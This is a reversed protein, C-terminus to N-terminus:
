PAGELARALALLTGAVADPARAASARLAGTSAPGLRVVEVLAGRVRAPDDVALADCLIRVAGEASGPPLGGPPPVGSPPVGSPSPEDCIAGLVPVGDIILGIHCAPIRASEGGSGALGSGALGSGALDVVGEVTRLRMWSISGRPTDLRSAIIEFVTGRVIAEGADTRVRFGSAARRVEFRGAGELHLLTREGGVPPLITLRSGGGLWAASRDSLSIGCQGDPGTEIRDGPGLRDGGSLPRTRAGAVLVADRCSSVRSPEEGRLAWGGAVVLLAAAAAVGWWLPARRAMASPPGGELAAYSAVLGSCVGCQALHGEIAERARRPTEGDCYSSLVGLDPCGDTAGMSGWMEVAGCTRSM